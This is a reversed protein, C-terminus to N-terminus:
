WWDLMGGVVFEPTQKGGRVAFGVM